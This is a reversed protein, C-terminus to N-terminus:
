RGRFSSFSLQSVRLPRNLGVWMTTVRRYLGLLVPYTRRGFVVCGVPEYIVCNHGREVTANIRRKHIHQKSIMSRRWQFVNKFADVILIYNVKM